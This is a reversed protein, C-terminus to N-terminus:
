LELSDLYRALAASGGGAAAAAQNDTGHDEEIPMGSWVGARTPINAASPGFWQPHHSEQGGEDPPDYGIAQHLVGREYPQAKWVVDVLQRYHTAVRTWAQTTGIVCVGRKRALSLWKIFFREHDKTLMGRSSSLMLHIEDFLFVTDRLDNLGVFTDICQWPEDWGVGNTALARGSAQALRIARLAGWTTKGAGLRGIVLEMRGVLEADVKTPFSTAAQLSAPAVSRWVSSDPKFERM